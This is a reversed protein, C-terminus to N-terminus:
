DDAKGARTLYESPSKGTHAKFSENFSSKSNFGSDMAIGLITKHSDAGSELKDVVDQVRFSNLYNRFNTKHYRNVLYSLYKTPVDMTKAVDAVSLEAQLFVKDKQMLQHLQDLYQTDNYNKFNDVQSTTPLDFFGPSFYAVYGFLFQMSILLVEVYTFIVNPWLYDIPWVITLVTFLGFLLFYKPYVPRRTFSIALVAALWIIPFQNTFFEWLSTGLFTLRMGSKGLYYGIVETVIEVLGPILLLYDMRSPTQKGRGLNKLLFAVSPPIFLYSNLSWYPVFPHSQIHSTSLGWYTWLEVSFTFLFIGFFFRFYDGRFGYSLLALSLLTGQGAALLLLIDNM